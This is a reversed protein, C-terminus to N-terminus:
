RIKKRILTEDSGYGILYWKVQLGEDLLQRCVETAFDFAKAYCFRGISLLRIGGDAPMDDPAFELSQSHVFETSLINEITVLKGRLSPYVSLFAKGCEDSVAAIKNFVKWIKEDNINNLVTMTYDTHIWAVKMKAKVKKAVYHHPWMFSFAVDYEKRQKPMLRVSNDWYAQLLGYSMEKRQDESLSKARRNVRVKSFLRMGALLLNGSVIVEKIPKLLSALRPVEPLVNCQQPLLSLFEGKQSFLLLDVNYKEYDFANLLGALSREIGGIDMSYATILINKM